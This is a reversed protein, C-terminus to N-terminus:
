LTDQWEVRQMNDHESHSSCLECGGGGFIGALQKAKLMCRAAAMVTQNRREVVGNQQPTYPASRERKVGLQACYENFDAASFEVGCDTRLAGLLNSTKREVAAQVRKIATAAGSKPSLLSIWMYRSYDDVLLLFYRNGSPTAPSIPGCLDGHILELTRGACRTAQQPFPAHMRKGALCAECIQEVHELTPLGRVLGASAMKRLSNFNVHGFRAHWRWADEGACVALCVLRAIQLKLKYLRGSGRKVRALLRQNEDRLSMFGDKIRV